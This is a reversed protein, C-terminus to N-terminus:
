TDSERTGSLWAPFTDAAAREAVQRAHGEIAELVRDLAEQPVKQGAGLHNGLHLYMALAQPTRYYGYRKGDEHKMGTIECGLCEYVKGAYIAYVNSDEGKRALAM